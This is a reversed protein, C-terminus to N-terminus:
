ERSFCRVQYGILGFVLRMSGRRIGGGGGFLGCRWNPNTQFELAAWGVALMRCSGLCSVVGDDLDFKPLPSSERQPFGVLPPRFSRRLSRWVANGAHYSATPHHLKVRVNRIRPNSM